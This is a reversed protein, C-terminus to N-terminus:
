KRAMGMGLRIAKPRRQETMMVTVNALGDMEWDSKLTLRFGGGIRSRDTVSLYGGGSGLSGKAGRHTRRLLVDLM